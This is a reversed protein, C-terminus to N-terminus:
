LKCLHKIDTNHTHERCVCYCAKTLVFLVSCKISQEAGTKNAYADIFCPAFLLCYSTQVVRQTTGLAEYYLSVKTLAIKQHRSTISMEDCMHSCQQQWLLFAAMQMTERPTEAMDAFRTRFLFGKVSTQYMLAVWLSCLDM